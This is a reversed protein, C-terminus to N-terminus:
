SPRGNGAGSTKLFRSVSLGALYGVGAALLPSRRALAEADAILRPGDADICYRGVREMADAGQDALGAGFPVSPDERLLDAVRRLSGAVGNAREGVMSSVTDVQRDIFTQSSNMAQKVPESFNTTDM